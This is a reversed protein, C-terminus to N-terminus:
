FQAGWMVGLGPTIRADFPNYTLVAGASWGVRWHRLPRPVLSFRPPRDSWAEIAKEVDRSLTFKSQVYDPELEVEQPPADDISYRSWLKSTWWPKGDPTLVLAAEQRAGLRLSHSNDVKPGEPNVVTPSDCPILVTVERDKYVTKTALAPLAHDKKVADLQPKLSPVTSSIDRSVDGEKFGQLELTLRAEDLYGQRLKGELTHIHVCCGCLLLILLATLLFRPHQSLFRGTRDITPTM